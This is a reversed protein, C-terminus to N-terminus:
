MIYSDIIEVGRSFLKLSYDDEKLLKTKRRRRMVWLAVDNHKEDIDFLM